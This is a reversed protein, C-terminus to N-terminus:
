FIPYRHIKHSMPLGMPSDKAKLGEILAFLEIKVLKDTALLSKIECIIAADQEILELGFREAKGELLQEFNEKRSILVAKLQKRRELIENLSASILEVQQINKRKVRSSLVTDFLNQFFRMEDELFLIDSLWEKNELYLEQLEASLQPDVETNM